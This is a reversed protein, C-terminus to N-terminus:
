RRIVSHLLFLTPNTNPLKPPRCGAPTPLATAVSAALRPAPLNGAPLLRLARYHTGSRESKPDAENAPGNHTQELVVPEPVLAHLSLAPGLSMILILAVLIRTFWTCANRM